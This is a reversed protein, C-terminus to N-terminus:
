KAGLSNIRTQIKLVDLSNGAVKAADLQEQLKVRESGGANAPRGAPTTNAGEPVRFAEPRAAKLESAWKGLDFDKGGEKAAKEALFHFYEADTAGTEMAAKLAANEFRSSALSAEASNLKASLEATAPDSPTPTTKQADQSIQEQDSAKAADAAEKAKAAAEAEAKAKAAVDAAAADAAPKAAAEQAEKTEAESKAKAAEAVAAEDAQTKKVDEPM